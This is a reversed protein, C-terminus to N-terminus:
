FDFDWGSLDDPPLGSQDAPYDDFNGADLPGKVCPIIPPTLSKSKLAAWDLGDFWRLLDIM